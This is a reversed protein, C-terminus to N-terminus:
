FLGDPGAVEDHQLSQQGHQKDRLIEFTRQFRGDPLRKRHVTLRLSVLSGAAVSLPQASLIVVATRYTEALKAMRGAEPAGFANTHRLDLVLVGFAGSRLLREAARLADTEKWLRVIVLAAPDVGAQHLDGVHLGATGGHIWAAPEGVCQAQWVLQVLASLAASASTDRLECLRGRVAQLTFRLDTGEEASRILSSARVPTPLTGASRGSPTPSETEPIPERFIDERSVQRLEGDVPPPLAPIRIARSSPRRVPEPFILPNQM